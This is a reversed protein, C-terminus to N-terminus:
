NITRSRFRPSNFFHIYAEYVVAPREGEGAVATFTHMASFGTLFAAGSNGKEEKMIGINLKGAWDGRFKRWRFCLRPFTQLGLMVDKGQGSQTKLRATKRKTWDREGRKRM